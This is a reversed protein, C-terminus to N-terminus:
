SIKKAANVLLEKTLRIGKDEDNDPGEYEIGVYGKYGSQKVLQLMKVYDINAENGAEDFVNTKASVGKAYPLMEEVGLYRNYEYFNGFDPLTGCNAMNVNKIIPVLWDAMSSFSGHNEVIVNIDFDKAFSALQSLSEQAYKAVEAKDGEGRANVRISHCGLYKAAEVWKYHKEINELRVVNNKEALDGEGDIMILVNEVNLDKTRLLLESLYSKSEAKDFFFSNVYEVANIGFDNKAKAPFDLTTLKGSRLTRHLSWQALSIKFFLENKSCSNLFAPSVTALGLGLSGLTNLKIFDRRKM